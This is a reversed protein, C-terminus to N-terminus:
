RAAPAPRFMPQLLPGAGPLDLAPGHDRFGYRRYFSLNRPNSSELYIGVGEDDARALWPELLRAGIGQSRAGRRAAIVNLYWHREAPPTIGGFTVLVQNAHEGSTRRLHEVLAAAHEGALQPTGPEAWLAAGEGGAEIELVGREGYAALFVEVYGRIGDARSAEDPFVWAMVPNDLFGDVLIDVARETRADPM